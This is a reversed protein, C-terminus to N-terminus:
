QNLKVCAPAVAAPIQGWPGWWIDFLDGALVLHDRGLQTVLAVFDDQASREPGGLHADSLVLTRTVACRWSAAHAASSSARDHLTGIWRPASCALRRRVPNSWPLAHSM